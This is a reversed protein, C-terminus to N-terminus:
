PRGVRRHKVLVVAGDPGATLSGGSVRDLCLMSGATFRATEGASCRVELTGDQVLILADRWERADILRLEDASFRVCAVDDGLPFALGDTIM